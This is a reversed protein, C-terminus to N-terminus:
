SGSGAISGPIRVMVPKVKRRDLFTGSVREIGFQTRLRLCDANSLQRHGEDGPM